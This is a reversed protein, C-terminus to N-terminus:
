KGGEPKPKKPQGPGRSKPLESRVDTPLRKSCAKRIWEGITEGREAADTKIAALLSPELKFTYLQMPEPQM